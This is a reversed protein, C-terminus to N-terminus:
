FQEDLDERIGYLIEVGHVVAIVRNTLDEMSLEPRARILDFMWSGDRDFLFKMVDDTLKCEIRPAGVQNASQHSRLEARSAELASRLTEITDQASKLSKRLGENEAKHREKNAKINSVVAKLHNGTSEAGDARESVSRLVNSQIECQNRCRLLENTLMKIAVHPAIVGILGLVEKAEGLADLVEEVTSTSADQLQYANIEPVIKM